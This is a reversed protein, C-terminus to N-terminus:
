FKSEILFDFNEKLTDIIKLTTSSTINAFIMLDRRIDFDRM